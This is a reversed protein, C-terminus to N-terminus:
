ALLESKTFNESSKGQANRFESLFTSTVVRQYPIWEIDRFVFFLGLFVMFDREMLVDNDDVGVAPNERAAASAAVPKSTRAPWDLAATTM